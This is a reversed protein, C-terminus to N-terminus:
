ERSGRSGSSGSSAVVAAVAAVVAVASVAAVAVAHVCVCVGCVYVEKDVGARRRRHEYGLMYLVSGVIFFTAGFAPFDALLEDFFFISGAFYLWGGVNFATVKAAVLRNFLQTPAGVEYTRVAEETLEGKAGFAEGRRYEQYKARFDNIKRREAEDSVPFFIPTLPPSAALLRPPSASTTLPPTPRSPSGAEMEMSSLADSELLSANM